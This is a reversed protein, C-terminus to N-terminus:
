LTLSDKKASFHLVNEVIDINSRLFFADASPNNLVIQVIRVEHIIEFIVQSDINQHVTDIGKSDKNVLLTKCSETCLRVALWCATVDLIVEHM